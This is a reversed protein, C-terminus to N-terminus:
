ALALVTDVMTDFIAIQGQPVGPALQPLGILTAQLARAFDANRLGLQRLLLRLYDLRAEDLTALIRAVAADDQAWARLHPEVPDELVSRGFQRLSRDASLDSETMVRLAALTIGRWHELVAAHFAPVDKFHWYFSGKTTKLARALPEAGLAAPGHNGLAELGANLWKEPSLRTQSM